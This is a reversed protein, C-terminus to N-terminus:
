AANEGKDSSPAPLAKQTPKRPAVKKKETRSLRASVNVGTGVVALVWGCPAVAGTGEGGQMKWAIHTLCAAINAPSIHELAEIAHLSEYTYVGPGRRVIMRLVTGRMGKQMRLVRAVRDHEEENAPIVATKAKRGKLALAQAVANAIREDLTAVAKKM